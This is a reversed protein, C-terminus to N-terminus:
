NDLDNSGRKSLPIRHDYRALILSKFFKSGEITDYVKIGTINCKGGFREYIGTRDNSSLSERTDSPSLQLFEGTRPQRCSRFLDPINIKVYMVQRERREEVLFNAFGNTIRLDSHARNPDNLTSDLSHINIFNPYAELLKKLVTFSRKQKLQFRLTEGKYKIEIQKKDENLIRFSYNIM